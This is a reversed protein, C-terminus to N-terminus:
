GLSPLLGKMNMFNRVQKWAYVHGARTGFPNNLDDDSIRYQEDNVGAARSLDFQWRYLERNATDCACIPKSLEAAALRVTITEWKKSVQQNELPYGAYYRITVKDPSRCINDFWRVVNWTGTTSDYVAEAPTVIGVESNRIGVRATAKAVTAPDTYAVNSSCSCGLAWQPYPLTEWILDAQGTEIAENNTVMYYRYIDISSAYNTLVTPGISKESVGEYLIPRVLLWSKGRITAVGGSISVTVPHIRWKESVDDSDLRDTSNFYARIESVDTVTTAITATFTDYLGDSDSDSLTVAAAGILTRTEYGVSQVYGEHLQLSDWHSDRDAWGLRWMHKDPYTPWALTEQAYQPAIRYGLYDKLKIEATEIADLIESRGVVDSNQWAYQRVLTNCASNLPVNSDSMQFFHFPSYGIVKRFTELPLAATM